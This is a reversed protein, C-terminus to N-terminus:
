RGEEKQKFYLNEGKHVLKQVDKFALLYFHGYTFYISLFPLYDTFKTPPSFWVLVETICNLATLANETELGPDNLSGTKQLLMMKHVLCREALRSNLSLLM